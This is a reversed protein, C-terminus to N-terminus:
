RRSVSMKPKQGNRQLDANDTLHGMFSVLLAEPRGAICEDIEIDVALVEDTAVWGGPLRDWFRSTATCLGGRIILKPGPLEDHVQLVMRQSGEVIRASVILLNEEIPLDAKTTRLRMFDFADVEGPLGRCWCPGFQLSSIRNVNAAAEDAPSDLTLTRTM